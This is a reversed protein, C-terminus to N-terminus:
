KKIEPNYNLCKETIDNIKIYHLRTSLKCCDASPWIDNNILTVYKKKIYLNDSGMM